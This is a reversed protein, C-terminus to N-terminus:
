VVFFSRVIAVMCVCVAILSEDIFRRKKKDFFVIRANKNFKSRKQTIEKNHILAFSGKIYETKHTKEGRM